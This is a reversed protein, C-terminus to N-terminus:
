SAQQLQCHGNIVDKWTRPKSLYYGQIIDCGLNKIHEFDTKTEVGEVIVALQYDVCSDILPLPKAIVSTNILMPMLLLILATRNKMIEDM